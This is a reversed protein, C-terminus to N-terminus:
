WTAFFSFITSKQPGRKIPAGTRGFMSFMGLDAEAALHQRYNLLASRSLLLRGTQKSQTLFRFRLQAIVSAPYREDLGYDKVINGVFARPYLEEPLPYQLVSERSAVSASAPRAARRRNGSVTSSAAMSSLLMMVALIIPMHIRCTRGPVSKRDDNSTM